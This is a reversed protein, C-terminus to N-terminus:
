DVFLINARGIAKSLRYVMDKTGKSNDLDPHCAIARELRHGDNAARRASEDIMHQNRIPGAAKGHKTWDAKHREVHEKGFLEVANLEAITDAGRAGGVVVITDPAVVHLVTLVRVLRQVQRAAEPAGYFEANGWERDGTVLVRM